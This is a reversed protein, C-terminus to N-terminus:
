TPKRLSWRFTTAVETDAPVCTHCCVAHVGVKLERFEPMKPLKLLGFARALAGIDLLSFRFIFRCQHEKYRCLGGNCLTLLGFCLCGNCM